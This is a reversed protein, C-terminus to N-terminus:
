RGLMQRLTRDKAEGMVAKIVSSDTVGDHQAEAAATAMAKEVEKAVPKMFESSAMVAVGVLDVIRPHMQEAQPKLDDPLLSPLGREVLWAHSYFRVSNLMATSQTRALHMGVEAEERTEPQPMNPFLRYWASRIGDVNGAELLRVFEQQAGM